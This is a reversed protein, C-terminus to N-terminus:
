KGCRSLDEESRGFLLLLPSPAESEPRKGVGCSGGGRQLGGCQRAARHRRTWSCTWTTGCERRLSGHQGASQRQSWNPELPLISRNMVELQTLVEYQSCPDGQHKKYKTTMCSKVAISKRAAWSDHSAEDADTDVGAADLVM